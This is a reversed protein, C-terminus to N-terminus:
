NAEKRLDSKWRKRLVIEIASEAISGLTQDRRFGGHLFGLDLLEIKIIEVAHVFRSLLDIVNISKPSWSQQKGITFTWKHDPNFTSPFIGQEYLDEDPVTIILHGGRRCIRIWNGLAIAPGVVHELCHSSHVFDYAEDGIGDMRMADGDALDWSRVSRMLPFFPALRNLPDDGAGVDIGDGVFWRATFRQDASRRRFSKSVEQVM